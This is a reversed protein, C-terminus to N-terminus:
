PKHSNGAKMRTTTAAKAPDAHSRSATRPMTPANNGAGKKRRHASVLNARRSRVEHLM